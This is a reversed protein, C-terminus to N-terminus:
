FFNYKKKLERNQYINKPFQNVLVNNNKENFNRAEKCFNLETKKTEFKTFIDLYKFFLKNLLLINPYSKDCDSSKINLYPTLSSSFTIIFGNPDTIIVPYGYSKNEPHMLTIITPISGKILQIKYYFNLFVPENNKNIAFVKFKQKKHMLHGKKSISKLIKSHYKRMGKPM